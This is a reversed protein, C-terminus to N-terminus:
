LSQAIRKAAADAHDQLARNPQAATTEEFLALWREFLGASLDPLANHRLMPAGAFRQTRLLISSWFDVLRGLHVDWDVVHREFVPGLSQLTGRAELNM